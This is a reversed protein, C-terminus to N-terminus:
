LITIDIRNINCRTLITQNAGNYVSHEKVTGVITFRKNVDDQTVDCSSAKWVIGNGSIDVFCLVTTVGWQTEYRAIRTLTVASDSLVIPANKLTRGRKGVQQPLGFSVVQGVEGVHNSRNTEVKEHAKEYAYVISCALGITKLNVSGSRAITRVNYLYDSGEVESDALNEAWEIVREVYVDDSIIVTVNDMVMSKPNTLYERVAYSTSQIGKEKAQANSMWGKVRIRAHTLLLVEQLLFNLKAGEGNYECARQLQEFLGHLLTAKLAIKDVQNQFFDNLCTSGVQKYEQKNRLIFTENRKRQLKCHDCEMRDRYVNPIHENSLVINSGEIRQLTAIFEWGDFIPLTGELLLPIRSVTVIKGTYTESITLPKGWSWKLDIPLGKKELKNILKELTFEVEEKKALLVMYTINNVNNTNNTNANM